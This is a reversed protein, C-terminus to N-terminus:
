RLAAQIHRTLHEVLAEVRAPRQGRGPFCLQLPISPLTYEPLGVAVTGQELEDAVLYRPLPAVGAGSKVLQAVDEISDTILHADKPTKTLVQGAREFHWPYLSQTGPIRFGVLPLAELEALTGPPEGVTLLATPVALIVDIDALKRTVMSSDPLEGIRIAFDLGESVLDDLDDAVSMDLRIQPYTEIFDPLAPLVFRQGFAQSVSFNVRGRYETKTTTTELLATRLHSLAPLAAEVLAEGENTLSVSRTTRQFLKTGVQEELKQILRSVAARPMQLQQGAATFSGLVAVREFCMLTRLDIRDITEFKM